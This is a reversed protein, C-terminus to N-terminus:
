HIKNISHLVSDKMIQGLIIKKSTSRNHDLKGWFHIYWLAFKTKVHPQSGCQFLSRTITLSKLSIYVNMATVPVLNCLILDIMLTM